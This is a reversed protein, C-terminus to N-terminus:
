RVVKRSSFKFKKFFHPIEWSSFYIKARTLQIPIGGTMASRISSETVGRAPKAIFMTSRVSSASTPRSLPQDVVRTM